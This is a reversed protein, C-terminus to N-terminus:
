EREDTYAPHHTESQEIQHDEVAEEHAADGRAGRRRQDIEQVRDVRGYVIITDGPEIVTDGTPTGVYTVGPRQIGLVLVGENPLRLEVLNKGALWDGREVRLESVVYGDQLQLVAVYDRVELRAWRRLTWAILRNLRREVWQSSAATWLSLLGASLLGLHALSFELRTAQMFAVMLTAVVAGIGLNGLLMLLMVIRRRVPHGVIDEAETTTYGVGTFASRAQFKASERSMGTLMLAM